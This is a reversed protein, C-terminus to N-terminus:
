NIKTVGRHHSSRNNDGEASTSVSVRLLQLFKNPVLSLHHHHPHQTGPTRDKPLEQKCCEWLCGHKEEQRGKNLFWFPKSNNRQTKPPIDNPYRKNTKIKIKQKSFSKARDKLQRISLSVYSLFAEPLEKNDTHVVSYVM